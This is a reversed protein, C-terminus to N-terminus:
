QLSSERTGLIFVADGTQNDVRSAYTLFRGASGASAAVNIRLSRSDAPVAMLERIKAHQVHSYPLLDIRLTEGVVTTGSFATLEVSMPVATVNTVGLNTRVAEDERIEFLYFIDANPNAGPVDDDGLAWGAPQAPVMQGFSGGAGLNAIRAHAIVPHSAIIDVSGTAESIQFAELLLDDLVLTGRAPVVAQASAAPSTNDHYSLNLFLAIQNEENATNFIELSTTWVSGRLGPTRAVVPVVLSKEAASPVDFSLTTSAYIAPTGTEEIFQDTPTTGVDGTVTRAEGTAFRDVCHTDPCYCGILDNRQVPIACAFTATDAEGLTELPSAGVLVLRDGEPRFVKLMVRGGSTSHAQWFRLTGQATVRNENDVYTTGGLAASGAVPLRGAIQAWVPSIASGALLLAILTVSVLQHNKM